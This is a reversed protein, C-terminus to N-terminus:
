STFVGTRRYFSSRVIPRRAFNTKAVLPPLANGGDPGFTHSGYVSSSKMNRRLMMKMKPDMAVNPNLNKYFGASAKQTFRTEKQPGAFCLVRCPM